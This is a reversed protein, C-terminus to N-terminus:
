LKKEKEVFQRIQKIYNAFDSFNSKVNQVFKNRDLKEYRHVIMNRVGVVPSIKFAFAEELVKKEGLLQFTSELDDPAGFHKNKIIHRNVDIMTDIVLQFLRELTHYKFSDSLIDDSSFDAVFPRLEDLYSDLLQMKKAILPYDLM